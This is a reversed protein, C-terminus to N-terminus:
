KIMEMLSEKLDKFFEHEQFDISVFFKLFELVWNEMKAIEKTKKVQEGFLTVYNFRTVCLMVNNFLKLVITKNNTGFYTIENSFIKVFGIKPKYSIQNLYQPNHEFSCRFYDVFPINVYKPNSKFLYYLAFSYFYLKKITTNQIERIPIETLKSILPAVILTLFKNKTAVNIKEEIVDLDYDEEYLKRIVFSEIRNLIKYTIKNEINFTINNYTEPEEEYITSEIRLDKLFWGTMDGAVSSIFTIPNRKLDFNILVGSIISNFVIILFTKENISSKMKVFKWMHPDNTSFRLIKSRIMIYLKNILDLGIDNIIKSFIDNRNTKPVKIFNIIPASLKLMVVLRFINKIEEEEFFISNKTRKKKNVFESYKIDSLVNIYRHSYEIIKDLDFDIIKEELNSHLDMIHNIYWSCFDEDKSIIEFLKLKRCDVSKLEITLDTDGNFLKIYKKEDVTIKM